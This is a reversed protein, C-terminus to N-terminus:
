VVRSLHELELVAHDLRRYTVLVQHAGCRNRAVDVARPVPTRGGHEVQLFVSNGENQESLLRNRSIESFWKRNIKKGINKLEKRFIM